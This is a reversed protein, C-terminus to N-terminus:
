LNWNEELPIDANPPIREGFWNAEIDQDINIQYGKTLDWFRISNFSWHPAYFAGDCNKLLIIHHHRDDIRLQETMRVVDPGEERMWFHEPPSVNISIMNWGEHLSVRLSPLDGEIVPRDRIPIDGQSYVLSALVVILAVILSKM